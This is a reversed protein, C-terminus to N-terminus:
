LKFMKKLYGTKFTPKFTSSIVKKVGQLYERKKILFLGEYGHDYSIYLDNIQNSKKNLSIKNSFLYEKFKLRLTRDYQEQYKIDSSNTRLKGIVSEDHIRFYNLPEAIFAVKGHCLMKLWVLWDGNTKLSPDAGGIEDYIDKRFMVASANPIVNNHILFRNIFEKGDMIFDKEFFHKQDNSIYGNWYGLLNNYKDVCYSQCFSLVISDDKLLPSAVKEIFSYDAYDDSEAIWILNNQTLSIGKNWQAFTSGSNIDNFDTFFRSDDKILDIIKPISGDFSNDDLIFCLYDSISQSLISNIRKELYPLHNYNPIIISNKNNM